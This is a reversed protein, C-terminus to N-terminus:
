VRKTYDPLADALSQAQAAITPLVVLVLVVTAVVILVFMLVVGLPRSVGRTELWSVIPDLLYAVLLGILLPQFIGWFVVLVTLGLLLAGVFVILRLLAPDPRKM